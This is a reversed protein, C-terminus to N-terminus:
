GQRKYVDLHTYSVALLYADDKRLKLDIGGDFRAKSGGTGVHEVDFGQGQYYDALLSELEDWRIRSLADDRRHRVVKLGRAM